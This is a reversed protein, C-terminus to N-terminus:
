RLVRDRSGLTVGQASRTPLHEVASGGLRGQIPAETGVRTEGVRSFGFYLCAGLELCLARPWLPRVKQAELVLTHVPAAPCLAEPAASLMSLLSGVRRSGWM